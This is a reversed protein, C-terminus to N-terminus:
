YFLFKLFKNRNWIYFMNNNENNLFKSKNSIDLIMNSNSSEFLEVCMRFVSGHYILDIGKESKICDICGSQKSLYNFVFDKRKLLFNEYILYHNKGWLWINLDGRLFESVGMVDFIILSFFYNIGLYERNKLDIFLKVRERLFCDFFYDKIIFKFISTKPVRFKYNEDFQIKSFIYFFSSCFIEFPLAGLSNLSYRGKFNSIATCYKRINNMILNDLFYYEKEFIRLNKFCYYSIFISLKKAKISYPSKQIFALNEIVGDEQFIRKKIMKNIRLIRYPADFYNGIKKFLINKKNLRNENASTIYGSEPNRLFPYYYQFFIGKRINLVKNGNIFNSFFNNNFKFLLTVGLEHGIDSNRFAYLFNVGSFLIDSIFIKAELYSRSLGINWFGSYINKNFQGSIFGSWLIYYKQKKKINNLMLIFPVEPGIISSNYDEKFKKKDKRLFFSEKNNLFFVFRDSIMYKRYKKEKSKIKIIDQNYSYSATIGWVVYKTQGILIIPIGPFSIGVIMTYMNKFFSLYFITPIKHMLHPDNCLIPKKSYTCAGSVIWANSGSISIKLLKLYKKYVDYKKIFRKRSFNCFINIKSYTFNKFFLFPYFSKKYVFNKVTEHSFLSFDQILSKQCFKDFVLNDYKIFKNIKWFVLNEKLGSSLRWSQMRTIALVEIYEMKSFESNLFIEQFTKKSKKAGDNVGNVYNKIISKDKSSLKQYQESLGFMLIRLERDANLFIKGFIESLKGLSAYRMILLQFRRDAGHMYGLGYSMEKINNGVVYPIGNNDEYIKINFINNKYLNGIAVFRSNLKNFNLYFFELFFLCLFNLFVFLLIKKYFIKLM